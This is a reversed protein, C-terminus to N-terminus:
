KRPYVYKRDSHTWKILAIGFQGIFAMLQAPDCQCHMQGYSAHALEESLGKLYEEDLRGKINKLKSREWPMPGNVTGAIDDESDESSM